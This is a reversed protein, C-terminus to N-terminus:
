LVALIEDADVERGVGGALSARGVAMALAVIGDIRDAAAAKDPKANGAPDLKVAVNGAMWRLVPHGGHALRRGLVLRELERLAPAMTQFGQRMPVMLFGDEQLETALQVAGWPDYAVEVVELDLGERLSHFWERIWAYDVINGPTATVLGGDVWSDFPVGDSRVREAVNEAPIWFQALVAGGETEDEPDEPPFYCAAATM